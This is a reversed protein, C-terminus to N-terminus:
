SLVLGFLVPSQREYPCLLSMLSYDEAKIDLYVSANYCYNSEQHFM